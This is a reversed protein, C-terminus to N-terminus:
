EKIRQLNLKKIVLDGIYRYHYGDDTLDQRNFGDKPDVLYSYIDIFVINRKSCSEKLKKNFTEVIYPIDITEEGYYNHEDSEYTLETPVLKTMTMWYRKAELLKDVPYLDPRRHAKAHCTPCVLMLNDETNEGNESLYIIHHMHLTESEVRYIIEETSILHGQLCCRDRANSRLEHVVSAPIYRKNTTERM